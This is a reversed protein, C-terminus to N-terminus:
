NRTLCNSLPNAAVSTGAESSTTKVLQIYLTGEPKNQYPVWYEKLVCISCFSDFSMVLSKHFVM